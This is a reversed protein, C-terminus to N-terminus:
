ICWVKTYLKKGTGEETMNGGGRTYKLEGIFGVPNYGGLYLRGDKGSITCGSHIYYKTMSWIIQGTVPETAFGGICAVLIVVSIRKSEM